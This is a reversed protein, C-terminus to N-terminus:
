ETVGQWTSEAVNKGDRFTWVATHGLFGGEGDRFKGFVIEYLCKLNEVAASIRAEGHEDGPTDEIFIAFEVSDNSIKTPECDRYNWARTLVRADDRYVM